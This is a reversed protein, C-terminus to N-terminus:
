KRIEMARVDPDNLPIPIIKEKGQYPPIPIARYPTQGPRNPVIKPNTDTTNLEFQLLSDLTSKPLSSYFKEMDKQGADPPINKRLKQVWEQRAKKEEQTIKNQAFANVTLVLLIGLLCLAKM